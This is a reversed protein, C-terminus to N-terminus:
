SLTEPDRPKVPLRGQVAQLVRELAFLCIGAVGILLPLFHMSFRTLELTGMRLKMAMPLADRILLLLNVMIVLVVIEAIVTIGRSFARNPDPSDILDVTIHGQKRYIWAAGLFTLWTLAIQAIEDTNTLPRHLVFRFSVQASMAVIILTILGLCVWGLIWEVFAVGKEVVCILTM